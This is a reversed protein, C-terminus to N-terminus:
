RRRTGRISLKYGIAEWLTCYGCSISSSRKSSALTLSTCSIACSYRTLTIASRHLALRSRASFFVSCRETTHEYLLSALSVRTPTLSTPKLMPEIIDGRIAVGRCFIATRAREIKAHVIHNDERAQVERRRTDRKMGLEPLQDKTVICRPCPCHAMFRLCALLIRVSQM